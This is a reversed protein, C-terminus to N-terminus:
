LCDIQYNITRKDNRVMADAYYYSMFRFLMKQFRQYCLFLIKLISPSNCLVGTGMLPYYFRLVFKKPLFYNTSIAPM